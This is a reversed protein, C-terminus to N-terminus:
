NMEQKVDRDPWAAADQMELENSLISGRIMGSSAEIESESNWYLERLQEEGCGASRCVENWHHLITVSHIDASYVHMANEKRSALNFTLRV